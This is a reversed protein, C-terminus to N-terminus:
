QKESRLLNGAFAGIFHVLKSFPFYILLINATLVHSALVWRTGSEAIAEPFAPRFALLSQLYERYDAVHIDGFFRLHNGLLIIVLILVLLFYDEPTSLDKYPSKFRRFLLYLVTVLLIIGITGGSWLAFQAMGEDGLANVLPTFEQIIRLHGVFAAIGGLHLLIVFLWMWRDVDLVQPFFFSDRAMWLVRAGKNRPQPFIGLRIGSRPVRFWQFVRYGTGFLFVAVAIYVLVGAALFSFWNM